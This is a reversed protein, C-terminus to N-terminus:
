RNRPWGMGSVEEALVDRGIDRFVPTGLLAMANDLESTLMEIARVAGQPGMAALGYVFARGILVATAGLARARVIDLGRRIGGDILVPVRGAVREAVAPLAAIASPVGDLQRGGHNSVSIGDAGAGIAREADDARLIGKIVVPGGWVSKMWEIDTWSLAPDFSDSVHKALNLFGKDAGTQYNAFTLRPGTMTRYLWGPRMAANFADALSIKPPVTFGNRADRERKGHAALDVTVVLVNCGAAKARQMLAKSLERDKMVYLQFWFPQRVAEALEEISTSANTSLCYGIGAAKAARAADLEGKPTSLGTLGIPSLIIPAALHQGFLEVAMDRKSVDVMMRPALRIREFDAVNAARTTEDGAGGDIFDFVVKPLRRRAELRLDKIAVAKPM